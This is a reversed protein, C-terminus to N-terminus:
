KRDQGKALYNGMALYHLKGLKFARIADQPSCVIPEEHMNFSTNIITAIGTIKRYEDIIRYYNENAEKRVLQPRATGDIHIAAPCTKKMFDTCNFTITMFEAAYDAGEINHYYKARYEYLTSPAFPMFETRGLQKNLWLNVNYDSAKYLISRNGLARPGYEMRGNFRGIINGKAILQAVIKEINSIKEYHLGASALADRMESDSYEPGYYIAEIRRSKLSRDILATVMLAAGTATGGDGMNPYIFIQDVGKIEFIRQNLKVNGAVGGAFVIKNLKYKKIYYEVTECIVRELVRQCAAAIDIKGFKLSLMRNFLIDQGNIYKFDGNKMRFRAQVTEFLLQPDGYAALGVIKGEHRSPLFGLSSTLEEYFLGMSHPYPIKKLQTLLLDEGLFIKGALGSGYADMTVVLARSFGSCFYAGYAHSNHHDVRKLKNGLGLKRLGKRLQM